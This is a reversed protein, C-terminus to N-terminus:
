LTTTTIQTGGGHNHADRWYSDQDKPVVRGAPWFKTDDYGPDDRFKKWEGNHNRIERHLLCRARGYPRPERPLGDGFNDGMRFAGAPVFVYDGHGDNVTPAASGATACAKRAPCSVAALAGAGRGNVWVGCRNKVGPLLWGAESFTGAPCGTASHAVAYGDGFGHHGKPLRPDRGCRRSQDSRYVGPRHRPM